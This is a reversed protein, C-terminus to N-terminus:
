TQKALDRADRFEKENLECMQESANRSVEQSNGTNRMALTFDWKNIARWSPFKSRAVRIPGIIAWNGVKVNTPFPSTYKSYWGSGNFPIWETGDWLCVVEDSERYIIHGKANVFGAPPMPNDSTFLIKVSKTAM